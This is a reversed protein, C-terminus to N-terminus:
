GGANLSKDAAAKLEALDEALGGGRDQVARRQFVNHDEVGPREKPKEAAFPDLAYLIQLTAFQDPDRTEAGVGIM